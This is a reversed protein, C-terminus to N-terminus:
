CKLHFIRIWPQCITIIIFILFTINILTQRCNQFWHRWTRPYRQIRAQPHSTLLHTLLHPSTLHPSSLPCSVFFFFPPPPPLFPYYWDSRRNKLMDRVRGLSAIMDTHGEIMGGVERGEGSWQSGKMGWWFKVWRSQADWSQQRALELAYLAKRLSNFSADTRGTLTIIANIHAILEDIEAIIATAFHIYDAKLEEKEKRHGGGGGPWGWVGSRSVLFLNLKDGFYGLTVEINMYASVVKGHFFILAEAEEDLCGAM